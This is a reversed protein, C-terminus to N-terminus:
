DRKLDGHIARNFYRIMLVTQGHICRNTTSVWCSLKLDPVNRVDDAKNTISGTVRLVEVGNQVSPESTLDQILLGYDDQLTSMGLNKYVASMQPVQKLIYTRGFIFISAVSIIFLVLVLWNVISTIRQRRRSRVFTEPPLPVDDFDYDEEFVRDHLEAETKTELVPTPEPIPEPAPPPPSPPPPPDGITGDPM